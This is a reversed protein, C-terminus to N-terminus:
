FYITKKLKSVFHSRYFLSHKIINEVCLLLENFLYRNCIYDQNSTLCCFHFSFSSVLHQIAKKKNLSDVDSIIESSELFLWRNLHNETHSIKIGGFDMNHGTDICHEILACSKKKLKIDSKHKVLINNVFLQSM